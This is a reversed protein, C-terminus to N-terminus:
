YPRTEGTVADAIREAALAASLPGGWPWTDGGIPVVRDREVVPLRRYAPNKSWTERFPDDEELAMTLVWDADGIKRLGELGAPTIGWQQPEGTRFANRLGLREAVAVLQAGDDFLRASPKGSTFAQVLAVADGKAGAQEIRRAQAALTDDLRALLDSAQQERGLLVGLREVQTRMRDWETDGSGPKPAIDFVALPAIRELKDVNKATGDRGGVILDPKLAAIRELSAEGRTGVSTTSTALPEGAAVWDRYIEADGAGVLEGGLARVNEAAEWEIAVIRRAPRDLEIRKGRDDTVTVPGSSSSSAGTAGSSADGDGGCAALVLAALALLLAPATAAWRPATSRAPSM